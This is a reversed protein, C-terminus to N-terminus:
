GKPTIIFPYCKLKTWNPLVFQVVNCQPEQAFCYQGEGPMATEPLKVTIDYSQPGLSRAGQSWQHRTLLRNDGDWIERYFNNSCEKTRDVDVHVIIDEGPKPANTIQINQYVYPWESNMTGFAYFAFGVVAIFMTAM